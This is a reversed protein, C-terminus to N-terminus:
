HAEYRTKGRRLANFCELVSIWEVSGGIWSFWEWKMLEQSYTRVRWFGPEKNSICVYEPIKCFGQLRSSQLYVYLRGSGNKSDFSNLVCVWLCLLFFPPSKSDCANLSTDSGKWGWSRFFEPCVFSLPMWCPLVFKDREYCFVHCKQRLTNLIINM